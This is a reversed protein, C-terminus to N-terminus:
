DPKRREPGSYAAEVARDSARRPGAGMRTLVTDTASQSAMTLDRALALIAKKSSTPLGPWLLALTELLPIEGTEVMRSDQQPAADSPLGALRRYEEVTIKMLKAVDYVRGKPIGRRLWNTIVAQSEDLLRAAEAKKGREGSLFEKLPEASITDKQQNAM